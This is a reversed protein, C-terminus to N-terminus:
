LPAIFDDPVTKYDKQLSFGRGMVTAAPIIVMFATEDIKQIEEQVKPVEHTSLTTMVMNHNRKTHGGKVPITTAGRDAKNTIYDIIEESRQSIILLNRSSNLGAMMKDITLSVVVLSIISYMVTDPDFAIASIAVISGDVVLLVTGLPLPTYKNLIQTIIGTGGTSSNGYFVIGLGLGLVIGGFIAALLPQKTLTPIDETLKIFTPFILSGFFTKLLVEKGLFIWCLLLLPLTTALIFNSNNWGWLANLSIALGGVGGSAINNEVLLANYGVAAIFSGITVLLFDAIKRKM